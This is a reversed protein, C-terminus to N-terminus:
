GWGISEGRNRFFRREPRPLPTWLRSESALHFCSSPALPPACMCCFGGIKPSWSQAIAPPLTAVRAGGRPVGAGRREQRSGDTPRNFWSAVFLVVSFPATEPVLAGWLHCWPAIVCNNGRCRWGSTLRSTDYRSIQHFSLRSCCNPASWGSYSVLRAAPAKM